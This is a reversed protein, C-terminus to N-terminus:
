WIDGDRWDCTLDGAVDLAVGAEFVYVDEDDRATPVPGSPTMTLRRGEWPRWGRHRYFGAGMESAGLAGMEYARRVVQELADM